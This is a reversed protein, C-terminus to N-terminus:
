WVADQTGTVSSSAPPLDTATHANRHAHQSAPDHAASKHICSCRATVGRHMCPPVLICSFAFDPHRQPARRCAFALLVWFCFGGSGRLPPMTCPARLSPGVCWKCVTACRPAHWGTRLLLLLLLKMGASLQRAPQKCARVPTAAAACSVAPGHVPGGRCCPCRQQAAWWAVMAGVRQALRCTSRVWALRGCVSDHICLLCLVSAHHHRAGQECLGRSHVRSGACSGQMAHARACARVCRVRCPLPRRFVCLCCLCCRGSQACPVCDGERAASWRM